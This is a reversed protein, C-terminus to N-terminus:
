LLYVSTSVVSHNSLMKIECLNLNMEPIHSGEYQATNDTKDETDRQKERKFKEDETQSSSTM